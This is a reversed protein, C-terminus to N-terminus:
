ISTDPKLTTQNEKIYYATINNSINSSQSDIGISSGSPLQCLKIEDALSELTYVNDKKRKSLSPKYHWKCCTLSRKRGM